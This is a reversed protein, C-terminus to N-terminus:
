GINYSEARGGRCNSVRNKPLLEPFNLSILEVPTLLFRNTMQSKLNSIPNNFQYQLAFHREHSLLIELVTM